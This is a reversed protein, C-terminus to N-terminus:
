QRQCHSTTNTYLQALEKVLHTIDPGPLLELDQSVDSINTGKHASKPDSFNTILYKDTCQVLTGDIQSANVKYEGLNSYM